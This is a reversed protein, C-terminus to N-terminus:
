SAAFRKLKTLSTSSLLQMYKLRPMNQRLADFAEDEDSYIKALGRVAWFRHQMAEAGSEEDTDDDYFYDQAGVVGEATDAGFVVGETDAGVVVGEETADAGGIRVVVVGVVVFVLALCTM